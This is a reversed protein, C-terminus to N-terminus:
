TSDREGELPRGRFGQTLMWGRQEELALLQPASGPREDALLRTLAPAHRFAQPLAKFYLQGVTAHVRLICSWEWSRVQEIRAPAAFGLGALQACIWESASDFWGAQAWPRRSPPIGGTEAELLRDAILERHEPRVTPLTPLDERAIWRGNAPLDWTPSHNELAYVRNVTRADLDSSHSWCMLTTVHIGLQEEMEQNIHGVVAEHHERAVFHPLSWGAEDPLMLVCPDTAHPILCYYHFTYEPNHYLPAETM